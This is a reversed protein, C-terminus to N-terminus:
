AEQGPGLDLVGQDALDWEDDGKPAFVAPRMVRIDPYSFRPNFDACQFVEGIAGPGFSSEQLILGFKPFVAYAEGAPPRIALFNGDSATKFVPALKEDRRRDVANIVSIVLPDYRARFESRVDQNGLAENYRNCSESFSYGQLRAEMQGRALASVSGEDGGRDFQPSLTNRASFSSSSHSEIGWDRERFLIKRIIDADEEILALLEQRLERRDVLNRRLSPETPNGRDVVVAPRVAMPQQYYGRERQSNDNPRSSVYPKWPKVNKESARRQSLLKWLIWILALFATVGAGIIFTELM